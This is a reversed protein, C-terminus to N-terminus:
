AKLPLNDMKLSFKSHSKIEQSLVLSMPTILVRSIVPEERRWMLHSHLPSPHVRATKERVRSNILKVKM